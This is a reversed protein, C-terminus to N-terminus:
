LAIGTQFVEVHDDDPHLYRIDIDQPLTFIRQKGKVPFPYIQRTNEFIWKYGDKTKRTGTMEVTAIAVGHPLEDGELVMKKATACIILQGRYSTNWTRREVHEGYAVLSAWPQNISLFHQTMTM